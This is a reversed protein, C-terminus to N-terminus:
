INFFYKALMELAIITLMIRFIIKFQNKDLKNLLRKGILTGIILFVSLILILPWYVLVNVGIFGFLPIKLLYSIIQVTAKTAVLEEKLIDNRLFFPAVFPGIAGFFIGIIGAVFGVPVFVTLKSTYSTKFKPMYTSILIFVAMIVRVLGKDLFSFAYIGILVGPIIGILFYLVINWNISKWFVTIRTGTSVLQLSAHLPVIYDTEILLMIAALLITGGGLGTAGGVISAFLSVASLILINTFIIM